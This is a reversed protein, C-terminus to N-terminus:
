LALPKVAPVMEHPKQWNRHIYDEEQMPLDFNIVHEVQPIDLGRAAIDTACLIRSTGKRFNQIAQNRQGQSRGGHILGVKFGSRSLNQALRDTRQKTRSFIIVSGQRQKLEALVRDNKQTQTVEAISQKISAVPKAVRDVNIKAPNRLYTEALKEVKPALTATFLLSQRQEPLYRIIQDLQPSFGMDLMRDGEDIILTKSNKLIVSRRMLHDILRGPTAVIIRPKKKLARQQKRMDVGGVLATVGIGPSKNTLDRLFDAIQHALERTPALILGHERPQALLQAVLPIAYAATKGSGTEACAILDGGGMALPIVSAQIATPQSFNLDTLATQIEPAFAWEAFTM